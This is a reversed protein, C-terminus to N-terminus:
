GLLVGIVFRFAETDQTPLGWDRIWRVEKPGGGCVPHKSAMRCLRNIWFGCSELAFIRKDPVRCEAGEDCADGCVRCPGCAYCGLVAYEEEKLLNSLRALFRHLNAEQQRDGRGEFQIVLLSRGRLLLAAM